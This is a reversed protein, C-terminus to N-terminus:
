GFLLLAEHVIVRTKAAQRRLPLRLDALPELLPVVERRVLAVGYAVALADPFPHRRLLALVNLVVEQGFPLRQRRRALLQKEAPQTHQAPHTIRLALRRQVVLTKQMAEVRVLALDKTVQIGQPIWGRSSVVGAFAPDGGPNAAGYRFLPLAADPM